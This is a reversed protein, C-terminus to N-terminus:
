RLVATIRDLVPKWADMKDELSTLGPRGKGDFREEIWEDELYIMSGGITVVEMSQLEALVRKFEDGKISQRGELKKDFVAMEKGGHRRVLNM